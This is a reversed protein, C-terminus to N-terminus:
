VDLVYLIHKHFGESIWQKHRLTLNKQKFKAEWTQPKKFKLGTAMTGNSRLGNVANDAVFLLARGLPNHYVSETVILRKRTVRIAEDLVRDPNSCHHLILLLTGTDFSNDPFPFTTGDYVTHPLDTQNLDTVDLLQVNRSAEDAKIMEGTWGEAAGVDLVSNGEIFGRVPAFNQQAHTRLKQMISVKFHKM